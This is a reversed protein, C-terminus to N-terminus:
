LMPFLPVNAKSKLISNHRAFNFTRDTSDALLFKSFQLPRAKEKKATLQILQWDCDSQFDTKKTLITQIYLGNKNM